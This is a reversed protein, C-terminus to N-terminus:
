QIPLPTCITGADSAGNCRTAVSACGFNYTAHCANAEVSAAYNCLNAPQTLVNGYCGSETAACVGCPTTAGSFCVTGTGGGALESQQHNNLSVIREKNLFLKQNLEIRKKKM